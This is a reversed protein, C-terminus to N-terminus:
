VDFTALLQSMPITAQVSQLLMRLGACGSCFGLEDAEEILKEKSVVSLPNAWCCAAIHSISVSM